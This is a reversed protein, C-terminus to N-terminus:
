KVAHRKQMGIPATAESAAMQASMPALIKFCFPEATSAAMVVMSHLPTTCASDEPMPPPPKMIMLSVFPERWAMLKLSAAGMAAVSSM